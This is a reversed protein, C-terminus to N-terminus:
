TASCGDPNDSIFRVGQLLRWKGAKKPIVFIPTNWLSTSPVTNALDLQKSWSKHKNCSNGESPGSVVCLPTLIGHSNLDLSRM